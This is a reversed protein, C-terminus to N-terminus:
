NKGPLACRFSQEKDTSGSGTYVAEQPYPCLPRTRPLAGPPNSAVIREPPKGSEAWHDITSIVDVEYPGEGGSCHAMGPIMFLRVSRATMTAGLHQTLDQYFGVTNMPSIQGDAWGHSLLLKRGDGLFKDLGDPPVDMVGAGAARALEMDKGFDFSRFDWRPNHFVLDRMYSLAAGYPAPGTKLPFMLESGPVPGAFIQRGTRPDRPGQYIGRLAEIQPATLCDPSDDRKCQLVSPDFQCHAPSSIIGDKVGDDADCAAVAAKHVLTFKAPPIRSAGTKAVMYASWVSSVLLLTMPNAPAMSSIANYDQPYRYAEMLAQRGGTSCSAFLSRRPATQYYATIAAKAAVTMEHVARHGFDALKEPHSAAFSADLADGQHGGDSAATAYGSLLPDVMGLYGISGAWVGNGVGVLKGNWGSAPMWVEFRIDSDVTPRATAAIRCFAPLKGFAESEGGRGPAKFAGAAV